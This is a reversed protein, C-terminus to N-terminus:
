KRSYTRYSGLNSEIRPQGRGHCRWIHRRLRDDKVSADLDDVIEARVGAIEKRVVRLSSEEANGTETVQSSLNVNPVTLGELLNRRDIRRIRDVTFPTGVTTVEEARGQTGPQPHVVADLHEVERTTEHMSIRDLLEVLYTWSQDIGSKGRRQRNSSSYAEHRGAFGPKQGM